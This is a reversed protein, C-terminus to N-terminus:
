RQHFPGIGGVHKAHLVRYQQRRFHCAKEVHAPERGLDDVGDPVRGGARLPQPGGEVQEGALRHMGHSCARSQEDHAIARGAWGASRDRHQKGHTGHALRQHAGPQARADAEDGFGTVCEVDVVEGAEDAIAGLGHM